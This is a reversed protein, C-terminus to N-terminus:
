KKNKEEEHDQISKECQAIKSSIKAQLEDMTSKSLGVNLNLDNVYEWLRHMNNKTETKDEIHAKIQLSDM